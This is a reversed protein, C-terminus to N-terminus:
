DPREMLTTWIYKKLHDIFIGYDEVVRLTLPLKNWELHARYFYSNQFEKINEFEPCNDNNIKTRRVVRPKINSIFHLPDMHSRRLRSLEPSFLKLYDPLVINISRHIIRHFISLDTLVLKTNMPLIDLIHLRELYDDYSYDVFQESLIWKVARKQVTELKKISTETYPRWVACCHEFQSRVLSLYLIRRQSINDTFHCTRKLLGLMCKAKKALTKTQENWNLRTSIFVGLDKQSEVYDLCSDGLCYPFRDFPLIHQRIELTVPLVKCKQPHFIMKNEHSWKLLSNIDYQLIIHDSYNVIRRWIKTDDAYLLINTGNSIYTHMDNIFLVFLLPGLISGQPVGSTVPKISSMVGGIVVCQQRDKLYNVIFKLMIGDIGFQHKLKHLIIDHNVSDFAKAFDFYIIDCRSADNITIALSDYFPLMQTTCSKGPLFGHQKENILHGLKAMLENRVIKELIKVCLCTLSIPRYNEVSAKSGKKFVPVVNAM